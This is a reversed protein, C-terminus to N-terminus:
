EALKKWVVAPDVPDEILYLLSPEMSLVITALAHDRRALYKVHLVTETRPDPVSETMNVIDWLGYRILAMKCQIKWTAYNTGNVFKTQMTM